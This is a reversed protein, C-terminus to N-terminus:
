ESAVSAVSDRKAARVREARRSGRPAMLLTGGAVIAIGVLPVVMLTLSSETRVTLYGGAAVAGGGLAAVTVRQAQALRRVAHVRRRCGASIRHKIMFLFRPESERDIESMIKDFRRDLDERDASLRSRMILWSRYLRLSLDDDTKTTM